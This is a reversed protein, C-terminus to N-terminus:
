IHILSLESTPQRLQSPIALGRAASVEVQPGKGFWSLWSRKIERTQLVAADPGLDDRVMRLADQISPARYTKVQMETM